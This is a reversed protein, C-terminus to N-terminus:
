YSMRDLLRIYPAKGGYHTTEDLGVVICQRVLDRITYITDDSLHAATYHIKNIVGTVNRPECRAIMQLKELTLPAVRKKIEFEECVSSTGFESYSVVEFKIKDLYTTLIDLAEDVWSPAYICVGSGAATTSEKMSATQDHRLDIRCAM